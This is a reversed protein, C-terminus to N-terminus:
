AQLTPPPHYNFDQTHIEMGIMGQFYMPAPPFPNGYM